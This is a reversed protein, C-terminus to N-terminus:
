FQRDLPGPRRAQQWYSAAQRNQKLKLLDKGSLRLIMGLPTVILLFFITLLIKGMTQGLHFSATMGVRYFRRFWGPRIAAVILVSVLTIAVTILADRNLTGRRFLLGAGAGALVAMVATFKWWEKPEEKLKLRM